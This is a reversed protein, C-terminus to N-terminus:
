PLLCTPGCNPQCPAPAIGSCTGATNTLPRSGLDIIGAACTKLPRSCGPVYGCAGLLINRIIDEDTSNVWGDNNVDYNNPPEISEPCGQTSGHAGLWNHVLDYDHDTISGSFDVDGAWPRSYYEITNKLVKRGNVDNEIWSHDSDVYTLQKRSTVHDYVSMGGVPGQAGNSLGLM